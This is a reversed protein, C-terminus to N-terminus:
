HVVCWDCMNLNKCFMRSKIELFSHSIVPCKYTASVNTILTKSNAKKEKQLQDLLVLEFSKM